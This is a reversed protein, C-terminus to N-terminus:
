MKFNTNQKGKTIMFIQNKVEVGRGGHYYHNAFNLQSTQKNWSEAQIGQAEHPKSPLNLWL